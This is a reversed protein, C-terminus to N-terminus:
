KAKIFEIWQLRFEEKSVNLIEEFRSYDELLNLILEWGWNECIFQVLAQSIIFGNIQNFAIDATKDISELEELTPLDMEKKLSDITNQSFHNVKYHAIGQHLWRPISDHHSYKNYIFAAVLGGEAMKIVSSHPYRSEPNTPSAIKIVDVDMYSAIWDGDTPCDIAKHFSSLDPYIYFSIKTSLSHNFEHSLTDCFSELKNELDDTFVQDNSTCYLKFHNTEKYLPLGTTSQAVLSSTILTLFLFARIM